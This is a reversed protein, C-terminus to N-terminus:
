EEAEPPDPHCGIEQSLAIAAFKVCGKMQHAAMQILHHTFEEVYAESETGKARDKVELLNKTLECFVWQAHQYIKNIECM